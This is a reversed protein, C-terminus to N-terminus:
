RLQLGRTVYPEYINIQAIFAEREKIVDPREHGDIYIGKKAEKCEYGLRLKLWRKATTKSIKAEIELAPLIVDNVHLCLMQPCVSGLSQAALYVRVDHLIAENDLLSYQGHRVYEKRPPLHNHKLLYLENHRVQRAFYVGKGMRHAIVLSAKLCPQKCVKNSKYTARLKVYESVATLHQIVKIARKPNHQSLPKSEKLCSEIVKFIDKPGNIGSDESALLIRAAEIKPKDPPLSPV